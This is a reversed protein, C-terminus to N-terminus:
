SAMRGDTQAEIESLMPAYVTMGASSLELLLTRGTAPLVMQEVSYGSTRSVFRQRTIFGQALLRNRTATYKKPPLM